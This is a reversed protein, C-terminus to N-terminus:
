GGWYSALTYTAPPEAERAKKADNMLKRKWRVVRRLYAEYKNVVKERWRDLAEEALERETVWDPGSKLVKFFKLRCWLFLLYFFFWTPSVPSSDLFHFDSAEWHRDRSIVHMRVLRTFDSLVWAWEDSLFAAFINIRRPRRESSNPVILEDPFVFSRILSSKQLDANTGPISDSIIQHYTTRSM